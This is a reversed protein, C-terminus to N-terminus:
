VLAWYKIFGSASLGDEVLTAKEPDAIIKEAFGKFDESAKRMKNEFRFGIDDALKYITYKGSVWKAVFYRSKDKWLIFGKYVM